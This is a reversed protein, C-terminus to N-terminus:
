HLGAAVNARPPTANAGPPPPTPSASGAPEVKIQSPGNNNRALASPDDSISAPFGITAQFKEKAFLEVIKSKFFDTAAGIKKSKTVHRFITAIELPTSELRMSGEGPVLVAESLLLRTLGRALMERGLRAQEWQWLSLTGVDSMAPNMVPGKLKEVSLKVWDALTVADPCYLRLAERLSSVLLTTTYPQSKYNKEASSARSHPQDFIEDNSFEV